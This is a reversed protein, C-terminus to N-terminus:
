SRLIKEVKNILECAEKETMAEAMIRVIPETNSARVQVWKTPYCFKFGDVEDLIADSFDKLLCSTKQLMEDKSIEIKAKKMVFFPIEKCLESISKGTRAMLSLVFAIGVLSDRGYHFEPCIVGGNGEGGAVAGIEKMKESVNIEGVKTKFVKVGYQKAVEDVMLSTSVNVVVPGKKHHLIEKCALALTYEEGIFEGKESIIALRDADPDQIFCVDAKNEKAFKITDGLNSIVPEPNRPFPKELSCNVCVVKCGLRELFKQTILSGAGNCSDLIVKFKKKSIASCDIKSLILDIHDDDAKSYVEFKGVLKAEVNKFNKNKYIEILKDAEQQNLFMGSSGVFKLANWEINNHSATVIIGGGAKFKKVMIEVTPTTAVGLDIVNCGCLRLTGTVLDRVAAGSPRTDQGVVVTGHNVYKAFACSFDILVQPTLSDGVIGRVGSISIMLKSM